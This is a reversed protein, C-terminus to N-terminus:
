VEEVYEKPAHLFGADVLMILLFVCCMVCCVVCFLNDGVKNKFIIKYLSTIAGSISHIRAKILIHKKQLNEHQHLYISLLSAIILKVLIYYSPM